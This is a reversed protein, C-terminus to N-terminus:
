MSKWHLYLNCKISCGSNHTSKYVLRLFLGAMIKAPYALSVELNGDQPIYFKSIFEDLVVGDPQAVSWATGNYDAPYAIGALIYNKDVVQFTLEDDNGINDIIARGGNIWREQTIEYDINETSNANITGKFSAGRFRFGVADSFPAGTVIPRGFADKPQDIIVLNTPIDPTNDHNIIINDLILENENSLIDKFYIDIGTSDQNIFDLAVTIDSARIENELRGINFNGQYLKNM